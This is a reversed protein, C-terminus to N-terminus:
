NRRPLRIVTFRAGHPDACVAVRGYPSRRPGALVSGGGTAVRELAQDVDDVAFFTMWFPLAGAWSADPDGTPLPGIGAIARGYPTPPATMTYDEAGPAPQHRHGFVKSYFTRATSPSTTLLENWCVAGPEDVIQTGIHNAAQWLGVVGGLPDAVLAACGQSGVRSPPSLVRGASARVTSCAHEVSEVALYTTWVAVPTSAAGLGATPKGQVLAFGYTGGADYQRAPVVRWGLVDTYFVAATDIDPTVLEVWAPTGEPWPEDQTVM